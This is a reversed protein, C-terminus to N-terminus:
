RVLYDFQLDLIDNDRPRIGVVQDAGGVEDIVHQDLQVPKFREVSDYGLVVQDPVEHYPESRVRRSPNQRSNKWAAFLLFQSPSSSESMRSM